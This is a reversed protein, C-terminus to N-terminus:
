SPQADPQKSPQAAEFAPLARLRATIAVLQPCVSLDVGFREAAAIQPVLCCDAYTPADGFTYRSAHRAGLMAELASFGTALWHRLWASKADDSLALPGVLYNLVRTNQLPQMESAIYLCFSWMRLRAHQEAPVLAPQPQREELYQFIALSQSLVFDGDVLTPVLRQPNLARYDERHQEGGDRVINVPVIRYPLQKLNLACRVRYSASSRWYAHLELM